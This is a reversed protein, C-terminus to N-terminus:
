ELLTLRPKIKGKKFVVWGHDLEREVASWSAAALNTVCWDFCEKCDDISEPKGSFLRRLAEIDQESSEVGARERAYCVLETVKVEREEDLRAQQQREQAEQQERESQERALRQQESEVEVAAIQESDQADFSDPESRAYIAGYLAEAIEAARREGLTRLDLKGGRALWTAIRLKVTAWSVIRQYEDGLLYAFCRACQEVSYGQGLLDRAQERDQPSARGGCLREQFEILSEVSSAIAEPEEGQEGKQFIIDVGEREREQRQTDGGQGRARAQATHTHTILATNVATNVSMLVSPELKRIAQNSSESRETRVKQDSTEPETESGIELGKETEFVTPLTLQEGGQKSQKSRDRVLKLHRPKALQEKVLKFLAALNIQFYIIKGRGHKEEWILEGDAELERLLKKATVQRARKLGTEEEWEPVTKWFRGKKKCWSISELFLATKLMLAASASGGTIKTLVAMPDKKSAQIFCLVDPGSLDYLDDNPLPAILSNDLPM